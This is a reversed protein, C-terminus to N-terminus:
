TLVMRIGLESLDWIAPADAARGTILVDIESAPAVFLAGARGLREPAILVITQAGLAFLARTMAAAEQDDHTLGREADLGDAELIVNDARIRRLAEPDSYIGHGAGLQGGIVHLTHQRQRALNYAVDLANTVVTLHAHSQLYPVIEAALTGPGIFVVSGDPIARAAAEAIRRSQESSDGFTAAAERAVAGGHVRRLRAQQELEALDRRVTVPDVRLVEALAAVVVAGDADLQRLIADHRQSKLM